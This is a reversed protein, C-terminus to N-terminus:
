PLAQMEVVRSARISFRPEDALAMFRGNRYNACLTITADVVGGDNAADRELTPEEVVTAFVEECADTKAEEPAQVLLRGRWGPRLTSIRTVLWDDQDFKPM